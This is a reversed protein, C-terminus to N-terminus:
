NLGPLCKSVSNERWNNYSLFRVQNIISIDTTSGRRSPTSPGSQNYKNKLAKSVAAFHDLNAQPDRRPSRRRVVPIHLPDRPRPPAAALSLSFTLALTIISSPLM